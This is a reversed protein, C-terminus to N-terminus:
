IQSRPLLDKLKPALYLPINIIKGDTSYGRKSFRVAYKPKREAIYRKFSPANKDEGGKVEIPIIDMGKQIVFDIEGDQTAFYRPEVWFQRRLQQLVYNETLPGKFQYDEKVLIASNDVGAMFKLLGTDALFLKFQDQRDFAKIPHEPKSVNYIRNIMGACDLWEIAGEFDRARGGPRVANFVFKEDSKCLSSVINGFVKLIKDSDIEGKHKIIDREYIKVLSEQIKMVTKIDKHEIWAKVSEPMGGVILYRNYADLLRRHCIEEVQSNIIIKEYCSYLDPDTGELFEDFCLPYLDLLDVAGVPYSQRQSLNTGLLSGACVVHYDDAQEKFFKLSTMAGPCAQIEDLFILTEHPRIKAGHILSLKEILGHPNLSGGFIKQLDVDEEFNVYVYDDYCRNAFQTILYTKGVQRAGLVILPKRLPSDKWKVLDSYGNRRLSIM